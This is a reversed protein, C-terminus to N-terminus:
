DLSFGFRLGIKAELDTKIKETFREDAVELTVINRCDHAFILNNSKLYYFISGGSYPAAFVIEDIVEGGAKLVAEKLKDRDEWDYYFMKSITPKKMKYFLM